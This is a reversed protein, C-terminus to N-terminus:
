YLVRMVHAEGLELKVVWLLCCGLRFGKIWDRFRCRWCWVARRECYINGVDEDGEEPRVMTVDDSELRSSGLSARLVPLKSDM